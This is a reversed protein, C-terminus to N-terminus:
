KANEVMSQIMQVVGKQAGEGLKEGLERFATLLNDEMANIAVKMTDTVGEAREEPTILDSYIEDLSIHFHNAIKLANKISLITKGNELTWYSGNSLGLIKAMQVSSVNLNERLNKLNM